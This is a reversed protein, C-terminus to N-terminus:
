INEFFDSFFDGDTTVFRFELLVPRETFDNNIPRSFVFTGPNTAIYKEMQRYKKGFESWGRNIHRKQPFLNIEM